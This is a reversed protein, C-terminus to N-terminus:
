KQEEEEEFQKLLSEAYEKIEDSASWEGCEYPEDDHYNDHQIEECKKIIMEVMKRPVVETEALKAYQEYNEGYERAETRPVTFDNYLNEITVRSM